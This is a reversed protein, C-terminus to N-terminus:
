DQTIQPCIGSLKDACSETYIKSLYSNKKFIISILISKVTVYISIPFLLSIVSLLLLFTM